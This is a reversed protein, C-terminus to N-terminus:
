SYLLLLLLLLLLLIIIIIIIVIIIIRIKMIIMITTKKLSIKIEECYFDFSYVFLYEFSRLITGAFFFSFFVFYYTPMTVSLVHIFYISTYVM